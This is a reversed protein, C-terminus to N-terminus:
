SDSSKLRLENYDTAYKIKLFLFLDWPCLDPSNLFYLVHTEMYYVCIVLFVQGRLLQVRQLSTLSWELLFTWPIFSFQIQHHPEQEIQFNETNFLFVQFWIVTHLSITTKYFLYLQFWITTYLNNTNSLASKFCYLQTCIIEILYFYKIDYLQTCVFM